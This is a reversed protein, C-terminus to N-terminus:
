IFNIIVKLVKFIILFFCYYQIILCRKVSLVKTPLLFVNVKCWCVRRLPPIPLCLLSYKRLFIDVM